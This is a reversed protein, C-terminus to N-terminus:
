NLLDKLQLQMATTIEGWVEDEDKIQSLAQAIRSAYQHQPMPHREKRKSSVLTTTVGWAMKM